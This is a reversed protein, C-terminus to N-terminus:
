KGIHAHFGYTVLTCISVMWLFGEPFPKAPLEVRTRNVLSPRKVLKTGAEQERITYWLDGLMYEYYLKFQPLITAAPPNGLIPVAAPNGLIDGQRNDAYPGDRVSLSLIMSWGLCEAVHKGDGANNAELRAHIRNAVSSEIPEGGVVGNTWNVRDQFEPLGPFSNKVVVRDRINGNHDVCVWVHIIGSGGTSLPIMDHSQPVPLWLGQVYQRTNAPPQSTLTPSAFNWVRILNNILWNKAPRSIRSLAHPLEAPTPPLPAVNHAAM